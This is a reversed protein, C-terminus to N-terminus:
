LVSERGCLSPKQKIEKEKKNLKRVVSTKHLSLSPLPISIVVKEFYLQEFANLEEQRLSPSFTPFHHSHSFFTFIYIHAKEIFSYRVERM